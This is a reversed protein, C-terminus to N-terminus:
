RQRKKQSKRITEKRQLLRESEGGASQRPRELNEGVLNRGRWRSEPYM